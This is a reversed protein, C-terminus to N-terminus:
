HPLRSGTKLLASNPRTELIPIRGQVPEREATLEAPAKLLPTAM